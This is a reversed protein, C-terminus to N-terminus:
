GVFSNGCTATFYDQLKYSFGLPDVAKVFGSFVFTAGLVYRSLLRLFFKISRMEKM